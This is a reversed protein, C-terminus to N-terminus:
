SQLRRNIEAYLLKKEDDSLDAEDAEDSVRALDDQTTELAQKKWWIALMESAGAPIDAPPLIGPAKETTKAIPETVLKEEYAALKDELAETRNAQAIRTVQDAPIHQVEEPIFEGGCEEPFACRLAAAEACKDIQGRPRTEWMSNPSGDRNSAFTEIWYVQPGFFEVRVGRVMRYVTVQAWEPFTITVSGFQKTIDPGFETKGRGAYEGTRFATTRLEGIGPWITDVMAKMDKNWIPVIHVNRKFPDLKRARCYSLALIVSETTTANPFIAEVLAKWSAKDVGFRAEIAPHYPLRPERLALTQTKDRKTETTKLETSM